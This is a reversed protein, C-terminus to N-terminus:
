YVSRIRPPLPVYKPVLELKKVPAPEPAPEPEDLQPKEPEPEPLPTHEIQRSADQPVVVSGDPLVSHGEPITTININVTSPTANAAATAAAQAAEAAEAALAAELSCRVERLCFILRMGETTSIKGNIMSRYIRSQEGVVGRLTDLRRTHNPCLLQGKDLRKVQFRAPIAEMEIIQDL